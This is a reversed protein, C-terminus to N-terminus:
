LESKCKKDLRCAWAAAGAAVVVWSRVVALAPSVVGERWPPPRAIWRRQAEITRTVDGRQRGVADDGRVRYSVFEFSTGFGQAEPATPRVNSEIDVTDAVCVVHSALCEIGSLASGVPGVGAGRRRRHGIRAEAATRTVAAATTSANNWGHFSHTSSLTSSGRRRAGDRDARGRRRVWLRRRRCRWRRRRRGGRWGVRRVYRRGARRCGRCRVNRRGGCRRRHRRGRNRGNGTASNMEM